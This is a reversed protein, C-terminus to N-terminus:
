YLSSIQNKKPQNTVLYKQLKSEPISEVDIEGIEDDFVWDDLGEALICHKTLCLDDLPTKISSFCQAM